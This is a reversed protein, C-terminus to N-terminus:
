IDKRSPKRPKPRLYPPLTDSPGFVPEIKMNALTDLTAFTELMKAPCVDVKKCVVAIGNFYCDDVYQPWAFWVCFAAAAQVISM